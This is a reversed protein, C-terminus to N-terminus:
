LRDPGANPPRRRELRARLDAASVLKMGIVKGRAFAVVLTDCGGSDRAQEPSYYKWYIWLEPTLRETPRGLMRLAETESLGAVGHELTPDYDGTALNVPLEIEPRPNPQLVHTAVPNHGSACGALLATCCLLLPFKM